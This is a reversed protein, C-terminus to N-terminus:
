GHQCLWYGEQIKISLHWSWIKAMIFSQDSMKQSKGWDRWTFESAADQFPCHCIQDMCTELTRCRWFPRFTITELKNCSYV